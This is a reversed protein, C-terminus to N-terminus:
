MTDLQGIAYIPPEVWDLYVTHVVLYAYPRQGGTFDPLGFHGKSRSEVKLGSLVAANEYVM